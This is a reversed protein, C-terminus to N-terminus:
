RADAMQEAYWAAIEERHGDDLDPVNPQAIRPAREDLHMEYDANPLWGALAATLAEQVSALAPDGYRNQLEYPDERLDFLLSHEPATRNLLLKHTATRAMLEPGSRRQDARPSSGEAFVVERDVSQALDQGRMAPAPALGAASLITPAVDVVSVLAESAGARQTQYPWKVM